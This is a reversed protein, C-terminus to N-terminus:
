GLGMVVFRDRQTQWVNHTDTHTPTHSIARCVLSHHVLLSMRGRFCGLILPKLLRAGRSPHPRIILVEVLWLADMWRGKRIWARRCSSSGSTSGGTSFPVSTEQWLRLSSEELFYIVRSEISGSTKHVPVLMKSDLASKTTQTPSPKWTLDADGTAHCNVHFSPLRSIYSVAPVGTLTWLFIFCQFHWQPIRVNQVKLSDSFTWVGVSFHFRCSQIHTVQM